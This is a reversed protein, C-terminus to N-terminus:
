SELGLRDSASPAGHARRTVLAIWAFFPVLQLRQVLGRVGSYVRPAEPPGVFLLFFAITALCLLGTALTYAHYPRWYADRRFRRAVVLPVIPMWPFVLLGGVLHLRGATTPPAGPADMPFAGAIAVGIAMIVLVGPAVFAAAGERLQLRLVAALSLFSVALVAFNLEQIWGRRGLALSSIPEALPDYGARLFGLATAIALFLLPGIGAVVHLVRDGSRGREM